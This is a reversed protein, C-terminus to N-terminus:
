TGITWIRQKGMFISECYIITQLSRVVRKSPDAPSASPINEPYTSALLTPRTGRYPPVSMDNRSQPHRENTVLNTFYKGRVNLIPLLTGALVEYPIDEITVPASPGGDTDDYSDMGFQHRLLSAPSRFSCLTALSVIDLYELRPFKHIYAQAM